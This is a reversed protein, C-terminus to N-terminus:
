MRKRSPRATSAVAPTAAIVPHPLLLLVVDAAGPAVLLAEDAVEVALLLELALAFVDWHPGLGPTAAVPVGITSPAILVLCGPVSKVSMEFM